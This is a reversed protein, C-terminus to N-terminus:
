RGGGVPGSRDFSVALGAAMKQLQFRVSADIVEDEMRLRFGGILGPNIRKEIRIDKAGTRRKIAGALGEEFGSDVPQVSEILVPVIGRRRDLEREIGAIVADVRRFLNKRVLLAIFRAAKEWARVSGPGAAARGVAEELWKAAASGFIASQGKVEGATQGELRKVWAALLKLAEFEEEANGATNIFAAAWRGPSFV